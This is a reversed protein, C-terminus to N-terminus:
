YDWQLYRLLQTLTVTISLSVSCFAVGALAYNEGRNGRVGRILSILGLVLGTTSLFSSFPTWFFVITSFFGLGISAGAIGQAVPSQTRTLGGGPAPVPAHELNMGGGPMDAFGSQMRKSSVFEIANGSPISAAEDNFLAFQASTCLTFLFVASSDNPKDGHHSDEVGM